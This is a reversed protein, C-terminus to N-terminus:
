AADAARQEAWRGVEHLTGGHLVPVLLSALHHLREGCALLPGAVMRCWCPRPNERIGPRHADPGPYFVAITRGATGASAASTVRRRRRMNSDIPSSQSATSQSGAQM